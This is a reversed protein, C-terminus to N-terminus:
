HQEKITEYRDYYLPAFPTQNKNLILGSLHPLNTPINEPKLAAVAITAGQSKATIWVNAIDSQTLPKGGTLKDLTRPPIYMVAYHDKGSPINIYTVSGDLLKANPGNGIGVVYEFTLEPIDDVLTEYPVEIELWTGIKYRKQPGSNIQYEPSKIGAPQPKGIKVAGQPVAVQALGSVTLAALSFISCLLIKM